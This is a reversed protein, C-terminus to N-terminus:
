RSIFGFDLSGRGVEYGRTSQGYGDMTIDAAAAANMYLDDM